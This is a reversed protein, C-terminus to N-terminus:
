ASGGQQASWEKLWQRFGPHQANAREIVQRASAAPTVGLKDSLWNRLWRVHKDPPPPEGRFDYGLDRYGLALLSLFEETSSALVLSEGGGHAVFVVPAGSADRTEGPWYAYVSGDGAAGFGALQSAAAADGGFWHVLVEDEGPRLQFDGSVPHGKSDIYACLRRLPDPLAVGPPFSAEIESALGM